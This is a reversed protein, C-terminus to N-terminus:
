DDDHFGDKALWMDRLIIKEVTDREEQPYLILRDHIVCDINLTTTGYHYFKNTKKMIDKYHLNNLKNKLWDHFIDNQLIVVIIVWIM